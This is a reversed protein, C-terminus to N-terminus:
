AWGDELRAAVDQSTCAVLAEKRGGCAPGHWVLYIDSNDDSMTEFQHWQEVEISIPLLVPMTHPLRMSPCAAPAIEFYRM